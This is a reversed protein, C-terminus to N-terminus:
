EQKQVRQLPGMLVLQVAKKATVLKLQLLWSQQKNELKKIAKKIKALKMIKPLNKWFYLTKSQFMLKQQYELSLKGSAPALLTM